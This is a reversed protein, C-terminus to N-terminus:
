AGTAPEEPQVPWLHGYRARMSLSGAPDPQQAPASDDAIEWRLRLMSLPNLGLRDALQRAEKAADLDGAGGLAAWRAYSAVAHTCSQREWEVAQPTAWLERWIAREARSSTKIQDELLAIREELAAIKRDLAPSPQRENRAELREKSTVAGALASSLRLNPPLPWRPPKGKRGAAPLLASAAIANRRARRGVAKPVPGMGPM